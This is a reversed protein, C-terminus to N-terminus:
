EGESVLNKVADTFSRTKALDRTIRSDGAAEEVLDVAKQFARMAEVNDWLVECIDNSYKQVKNAVLAPMEGRGELQRLAMLLHYRVPKYYVPVGGNRFLYELKYHAYAATYYPEIKHKENFIRDGVQGQLETYYGVSRHPEDLFMAAFARILQWKTIIRVKEIGPVANYQKSRREYYLKKKDGYSTLFAEIKKAFSGLAYLDEATVQTQKNTALIVSNIVDEDQTSIVKIPVQVSETLGEREDFLVHSTQCGNVIQYDSMAVKDRTTDLERTVVTVGNNLVVFRGKVAPDRLTERIDANVSNYEQFDRVNETFLSKRINGTDDTILKIFETAPVVGLYAEEVGAMEPLLVKNPFTIEKTVSNKSRLYSRHLEDAGMPTLEVLSFLGLGRLKEEGKEIRKTLYDDGNWLGTTAYFLHCSPKGRRFKVSNAYIEEVIDRAAEIADNGKIKRSEDFFEDLNDFFAILQEGSFNSASKAQIFNFQVDLSGGLKLVDALEEVSSILSGNVLIAIGDLGLDQGGGTHVDTVNFEDDYADSVVCYDVFLEFADADSVGEISQEKRFGDMYQKTVRDV